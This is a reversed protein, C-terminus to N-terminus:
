EPGYVKSALSPFIVFHGGECLFLAFIWLCFLGKSESVTATDITFGATIQILLMGWYVKAFGIKDSIYGLFFRGFASFVFGLASVQSLFMDDNFKTQGFKKLAAKIFFSFSMSSMLMIFIQWFTHHTTTEKFTMFSLDGTFSRGNSSNFSGNSSRGTTVHSVVKPKGNTLFVASVILFVFVISITQLMFPVRKVVNSDLAYFYQIDKGQKVIVTAKENDPNAIFSTLQIFLFAGISYFMLILGSMMGKKEPFFTWALKMHVIYVLGYGVGYCGAYLFLFIEFSTVFSSLAVSLIIIFGGLSLQTKPNIKGSM